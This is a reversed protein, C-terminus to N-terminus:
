RDLLVLPTAQSSEGGVDNWMVRGDEEVWIAAFTRGFVGFPGRRRRVIVEYPSVEKAVRWRQTRLQALARRLITLREKHGLVGIFFDGEYGHDYAEAMRQGYRAERTDM